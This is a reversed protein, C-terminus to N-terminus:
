RPNALELLVDAHCAAPACWCVLDHGALEDVHEILGSAYLHQRYREIVQDRTGHRGILYPNGWQRPRGVYTAHAPVSDTRTNLVRPNRTPTFRLCACYALEDHDRGDDFIAILDAPHEVALCRTDGSEPSAHNTQQHGCVCLHNDTMLNKDTM